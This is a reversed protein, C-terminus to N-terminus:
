RDLDPDSGDGGGNEARRFPITITALAGGGSAAGLSFSHMGPYLQVLRERINRLGIGRASGPDRQLGVGDDQVELVVADGLRHARVQITGGDPRQGIGHQISNEVLPQLILSPVAAVLVQEEIENRVTLRDGFRVEQIRLYADLFELELALSVTQAQASELTLRLFRSLHALMQDAGRTEGKLVLTSIAHLTNFLFHPQLQVRLAELKAESLSARLQARELELAATERERERYQAYTEVLWTGGTIILYFLIGRDMISAVMKPIAAVFMGADFPKPSQFLSFWLQIAVTHLVTFAILGVAHVFIARRRKGEVWPFRRALWIVPPTFLAVGVWFPLNARILKGWVVADGKAASILVYWAVDLFGLIQWFALAILALLWWSPGSKTKPYTDM